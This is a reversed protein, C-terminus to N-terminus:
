GRSGPRQRRPLAAWPVRAAVCRLPRTEAHGSSAAAHTPMAVTVAKPRDLRPLGLAASAVGAAAGASAAAGAPM